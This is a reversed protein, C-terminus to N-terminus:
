EAADCSCLTRFGDPDIEIQDGCDACRSVRTAPQKKAPEDPM